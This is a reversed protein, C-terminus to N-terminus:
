SYLEESGPTNMAEGTGQQKSHPAALRFPSPTNQGIFSVPLQLNHAFLV